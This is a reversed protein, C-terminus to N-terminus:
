VREGQMVEGVVDPGQARVALGRLGVQVPIAPDDMYKTVLRDIEGREFAGKLERVFRETDTDRNRLWLGRDIMVGISIVSLAILLWLVWNAGLQAFDVFARSLDMARLTVRSRPRRRGARPGEHGRADGRHCLRRRAVHLRARPDFRRRRGRRRAGRDC